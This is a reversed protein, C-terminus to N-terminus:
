SNKELNGLLDFKGLTIGVGCQSFPSCDHSVKLRAGGLEKTDYKDRGKQGDGMELCYLQYISGCVWGALRNIPEDAPARSPPSSGRALGRKM